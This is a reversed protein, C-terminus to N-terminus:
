RKKENKMIFPASTKVGLNISLLSSERDNSQKVRIQLEKFRCQLSLLRFPSKLDCSPISCPVERVPVSLLRSAALWNAM